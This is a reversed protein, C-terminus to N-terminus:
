EEAAKLGFECGCEPCTVSGVEGDDQQGEDQGDQMMPAGVDSGGDQGTPDPAQAKRTFAPLRAM